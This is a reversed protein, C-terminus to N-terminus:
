AAGRRRLARGLISRRRALYLPIGLGLWTLSALLAEVPDRFAVAVGTRLRRVFERITSADPTPGPPQSGQVLTTTPETIKPLPPLPPVPPPPTLTPLLFIGYTTSADVGAFQFLQRARGFELNDNILLLEMGTVQTTSDNNLARDSLEEFRDKRVSALYGGPSGKELEPDPRRLIVRGRAGLAQNIAAVAQGFNECGQQNYIGLSVGCIERSFSGRATGPLGAAHSIAITRVLEITGIGAIEIGKAWSEARARVGGAALREITTTSGTEAVRVQPEDGLGFQFRGQSFGEARGGTGDCAVDAAFGGLTDNRTPDPDTDGSCELRAFPWPRGVLSDLRGGPDFDEPGPWDDGLLGLGTDFPDPHPWCRSVPQALDTKTGPDADGAVASAAATGRSLKVEPVFGAVIERDYYTCPTGARRFDKRTDGIALGEIGGVILARVGFGRASAEFASDTVGPKERHDVTFRDLDSLPPDESVIVRDEFISIFHDGPYRVFYRRPHGARPREVGITPSGPRAFEPFILAQQAPTRRIDVLIAGKESTLGFLRGTSSDIAYRVGAPRFTTTAIAGVYSSRDVDFPLLSERFNKEVVFVLRRGGEDAMLHNTQPPGPFVAEAAPTGSAGLDLRVAIGTAETTVCGLYISRADRFLGWNGGTMEGRCARVQYAWEHAGTQLDWQAVYVPNSQALRAFAATALQDQYLWILKRALGNRPEYLALGWIAPRATMGSPPIGLPATWEGTTALTREDLVLVGSFVNIGLADPTEFPALLRGAREDVLTLGLLLNQTIRREALKGFRDLDYSRVLTGSALPAVVYLRRRVADTVLQVEGTADDPLPVAIRTSLRRFEAQATAVPSFAGAIAASLTGCVVLRRLWSMNRM